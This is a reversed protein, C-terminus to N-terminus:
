KKDILLIIPYDVDYSGGTIGTVNITTEAWFTQDIVLDATSHAPLVIEQWNGVGGFGTYSFVLTVDTSSANKAAIGNLKYEALMVFSGNAALSLKQPRGVGVMSNIIALLETTLDSAGIKEDKWRLWELTQYFQAQTPFDGTQFWQKSTDINAM